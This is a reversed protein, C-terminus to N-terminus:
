ISTVEDVLGKLYTNLNALKTKLSSDIYYSAVKIILGGLISLDDRNELTVEYGSKQKLILQLKLIQTKSLKKASIVTGYLQKNDKAILEKFDKLIELFFALRRKEILLKLFGLTIEQYNATRAIDFIVENLKKYHMGPNGIFAGLEPYTLLLGEFHELDTLVPKFAKKLKLAKFLAIAYRQVVRLNKNTLPNDL